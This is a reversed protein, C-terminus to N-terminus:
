RSPPASKSKGRGHVLWVVSIAAIFIGAVLLGLSGGFQPIEYMFEVWIAQIASDDALTDNTAVNSNYTAAVHINSGVTWQSKPFNVTYFGNADTTTTRTNGDITISVSAGPLRKGANDLVYGNVVKSHTAAASALSPVFLMAASVIAFSMAMLWCRRHATREVM